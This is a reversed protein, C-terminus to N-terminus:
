EELVTEIINIKGAATVPAACGPVPPASVAFPFASPRKSKARQRATEELFRRLLPRDISSRSCGVFNLPLEAIIIKYSGM